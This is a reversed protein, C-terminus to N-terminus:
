KPDMKLPLPTKFEVQTNGNPLSRISFDAGIRSVRYRMLPIGMGEQINAPLPTGDNEIRVHLSDHKKMSSISILTPNAHELANAVAEFLIEITYDKSSNDLCALDFNFSDIVANSTADFKDRLATLANSLEENSEIGLPHRYGLDQYSNVCAKTAAALKDAQDKGAYDIETLHSSLLDSMTVLANLKNLPQQLMTEYFGKSEEQQLQLLHQTLTDLDRTREIVLMRLSANLDMYKMQSRKVLATFCSFIILTGIGFPNTSEQIVVASDSLSSLMIYHYPITCFTTILAGKYLYLWGGLMTLPVSAWMVTISLTPYTYVSFAIYAAWATLYLKM